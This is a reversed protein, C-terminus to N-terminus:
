LKPRGVIYSRQSFVGDMEKDGTRRNLTTNPRQHASRLAETGDVIPLSMKVEQFKDPASLLFISTRYWFNLSCRDGLFFLKLQEVSVYEM